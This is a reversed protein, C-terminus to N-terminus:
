TSFLNVKCQNKCNKNLKGEYSSFIFFTTIIEEAILQYNNVLEM